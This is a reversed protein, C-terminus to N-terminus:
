QNSLNKKIAQDIWIDQSVNATKAAQQLQGYLYTPVPVDVLVDEENNASGRYVVGSVNSAFRRVLESKDTDSLKSEADLRGCYSVVLKDIIDGSKIGETKMKEIAARTPESIGPQSRPIEETSLNLKGNGDSADAAPCRFGAAQAPLPMLATVVILAKIIHSLKPM